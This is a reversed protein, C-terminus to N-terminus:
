RVNMVLSATCARRFKASSLIRSRSQTESPSVLLVGMACGNWPRIRARPSILRPIALSSPGFLLAALCYVTELHLTAMGAVTTTWCAYSCGPLAFRLTKRHVLLPTAALTLANAHLYPCSQQIWSGSTSARPM